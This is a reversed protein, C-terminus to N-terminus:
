RNKNITNNKKKFFFPEGDGRGEGGGLVVPWCWCTGFDTVSAPGGRQEEGEKLPAPPFSAPPPLSSTNRPSAISSWAAPSAPADSNPGLAQQSLSPLTSPPCASLQCAPTRPHLPPQMSPRPHGEMQTPFHKIKLPNPPSRSLPPLAFLSFPFPLLFIQPYLGFFICSKTSKATSSLM